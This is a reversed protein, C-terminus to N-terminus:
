AKLLFIMRSWHIIKIIINNNKSLTIFRSLIKKTIQRNETIQVNNCLTIRYMKILM